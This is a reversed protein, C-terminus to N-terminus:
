RHGEAFKEALMEELTFWGSPQTRLVGHGVGMVMSGNFWYRTVGQEDTYNTRGFAHWRFGRDHLDQQVDELTPPSPAPADVTSREPSALSENM